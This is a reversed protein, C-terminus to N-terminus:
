AGGAPDGCSRPGGGVRRLRDPQGSGPRLALRVYRAAPLVLDLWGLNLLVSLFDNGIALIGFAHLLKGNAPYFPIVSGIDVGPDVFHLPIITGQQALRGAFPMHYWLVDPTSM